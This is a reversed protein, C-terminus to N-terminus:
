YNMEPANHINVCNAMSRRIFGEASGLGAITDQQSKEDCCVSIPSKGNESGPCSGSYGRQSMPYRRDENERPYFIPFNM